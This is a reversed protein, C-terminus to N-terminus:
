GEGEKSEVVARIEGPWGSVLAPLPLCGVPVPCAGLPCVPILFLEGLWGGLFLFFFIELLRAFSEARHWTSRTEFVQSIDAM